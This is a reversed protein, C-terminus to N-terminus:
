GLLRRRPHTAAGFCCISWRYECRRNLANSTRMYPSALVWCALVAILTLLAASLSRIEGHHHELWEVIAYYRWLAMAPLLNMALLTIILRSIDVRTEAISSQLISEEFAGKSSWWAAEGRRTSLKELTPPKFLVLATVGVLWVWLLVKLSGVNWRLASSGKALGCLNACPGQRAASPAVFAFGAFYARKHANNKLSTSGKLCEMTLLVMM